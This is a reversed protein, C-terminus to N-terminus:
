RSGVGVILGELSCICSCAAFLLPVVRCIGVTARMACGFVFVVQYFRCSPRWISDRNAKKEKKTDYLLVPVGLFSAEGGGGGVVLCSSQVDVAYIPYDANQVLTAIPAHINGQSYSDWLCLRGDVGWTLLLNEGAACYRSGFVPRGPQHGLTLAIALQFATSCQEWLLFLLALPMIWVLQLVWRRWSYGHVYNDLIGHQRPCGNGM